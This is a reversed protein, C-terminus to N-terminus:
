NWDIEETKTLLSEFCEPGVNKDLRFGGNSVSFGNDPLDLCDESVVDNVSTLYEEVIDVNKMLHIGGKIEPGNENLTFCSGLSAIAVPGIGRRTFVMMMWASFLVKEGVKSDFLFLVAHTSTDGNLIGAATAFVSNAEMNEPILVPEWHIEKSKTLILRIMIPGTTGTRKSGRTYRCLLWITKISDALADEIETDFSTM